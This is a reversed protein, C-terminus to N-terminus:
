GMLCAMLAAVPNDISINEPASAWSNRRLSPKYYFIGFLSPPSEFFYSMWLQQVAGMGGRAMHM